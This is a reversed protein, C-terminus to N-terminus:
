VPDLIQIKGDRIGYGSGFSGPDANLFKLIRVLFINRLERFISRSYEIRIGSKKEDRIGSGSGPTFFVPDRIRTWLLLSESFM